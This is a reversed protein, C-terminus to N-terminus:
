GLALIVAERVSSFFNPTKAVVEYVRATFGGFPITIIVREYPKELTNGYLVKYVTRLTECVM